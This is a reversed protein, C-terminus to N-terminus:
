SQPCPAIKLFYRRSTPNAQSFGGGPTHPVFMIGEIHNYSRSYNPQHQGPNPHHPPPKPLQNYTKDRQVNPHTQRQQPPSSVGPIDQTHRPGQPNTKDKTKEQDIGKEKEKEELRTKWGRNSRQYWSSKGLIRERRRNAQDFKRERHIPQIKLEEAREKRRYTTVAGQLINARVKQSYWSVQLKRMFDSLIGCKTENDLERSCNVLRRVGEQTMSALKTIHPMASKM